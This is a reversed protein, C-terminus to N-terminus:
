KYIKTFRIRNFTTCTTSKEWDVNLTFPFRVDAVHLGLEEPSNDILYQEVNTTHKTNTDGVFNGIYGGCCACMRLDYGTITITNMYEKKNPDKKTPDPELTENRCSNLGAITLVAILLFTKMAEEHENIIFTEKVSIVSHSSNQNM